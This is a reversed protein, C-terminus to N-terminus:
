WAWGYYDPDGIFGPDCLYEGYNYGENRTEWLSTVVADGVSMTGLKPFFKKDFAIVTDNQIRINWGVFCRGASTANFANAFNPTASTYCADLFVFHWNGFSNDSWIEWNEGDYIVNKGNVVDGHCALYLGYVDPRSLMWNIDTQNISWTVPSYNTQNYGLRQFADYALYTLTDQEEFAVVGMARACDTSREFSGGINEGTIADVQVNIGDIEIKWSLRVENSEKKSNDWYYNPKFFGLQFSVNKNENINFREFTDQSIEIAEYNTILPTLTNPEIKNKGFLMISGDSADVVVNACDYQNILNNEYDRCWTLTWFGDINNSCDILKYAELNSNEEIQCIMNELDNEQTIQYNKDVILIETDKYDRKDKDKTSFDNFNKYSVIDGNNDFDIEMDNTTIRTTKRDLNNNYVSEIKEINNLSIDGKKLYNLFNKSNNSIEPIEDMPLETVKEVPEIEKNNNEINIDTNDNNGIKDIAYVNFSSTVLVLMIILFVVIGKINKKM